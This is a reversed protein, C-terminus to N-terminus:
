EDGPKFIETPTEEPEQSWFSLAGFKLNEKLGTSTFVIQKGKGPQGCNNQM